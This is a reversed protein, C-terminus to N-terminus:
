NFILIKSVKTVFKSLESTPTGDQCDTESDACTGHCVNWVLNSVITNVLSYTTRNFYHQEIPKSSMGILEANNIQDTLGVVFMRVGLKKARTAEPITLSADVNSQGDTMLIAVNNIDPRDGHMPTFVDDNMLRLAGSTNTQSGIIDLKEIANIIDEKNTYDNLYFLVFADQSFYILSIRTDQPGINLNRAVNTFFSKMTIWNTLNQTKQDANSFLISGSSDLIFM